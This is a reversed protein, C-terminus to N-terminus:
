VNKVLSFMSDIATINNTYDESNLLHWQESLEILKTPVPLGESYDQYDMTALIVQPLMDIESIMKLIEKSSESSPEKAKPSDVVFPFRIVNTKFYEMTQFLGIVQALIIKNELTGQAIIPHLLKIKTEYKESWAGLHIINSKVFEIYKAEIEKKNPMAKIAKTLKAIEEENKTIHARVEALEENFRDISKQLGRQRIYTDFADQQIQFATEESKIKQSLKVYERKVHDLDAKISDIILEIQQDLYEENTSTYNTLILRYLEDDLLYGCRPCISVAKSQNPQHKAKIKRYEHITRLQHTHQELATELQQIQNRLTGLRTILTKIKKKPLNLNAELADINEVSPLNRIEETLAQLITLVRDREAELNIIEDRLRDRDAMEQVTAKTYINLHYYLSKIRDDKKYQEINSFSEYLGSWGNDQDIYYPLFSFAPPSLEVKSTQKSPLFVAFGFIKELLPSLEKTVSDTLLLLKDQKFVAFRKCFRVIRYEENNVDFTLIYLKSSKDWEHDYEVEAGLTHYLSKLLSSKGVHNKRSTVVNLGASFSQQYAKHTNLDAILIDKFLMCNM